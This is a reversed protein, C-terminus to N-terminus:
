FLTVNDDDDKGSREESGDGSSSGGNGPSRPVSYGPEELTGVRLDGKRGESVRDAKITSKLVTRESEMTYLDELWQIGREDEWVNMIEGMKRMKGIVGELEDKFLMIPEIVHDIRQRTIDQFQMSVIIGSIDSALSEAETTLSNLDARTELMVADIKRLTEDVVAEAESSMGKCEDNSKRTRSYIANLDSDIKIILNRIEDAATNSRGSLKRVEDAVVAFGRGQEGARAAEIAANLALLNTQDAIYEIESLTKKISSMSLIITDMDTLSRESVDATGRLSGIVDDLATRSLDVLADERGSGAFRGFAGSAKAAQDRAREVINAFKKGADLTSSETYEVVERLQNVMVPILKTKNQLVTTIPVSDSIIKDMHEKKEEHYAKEMRATFGRILRNMLLLAAAFALVVAAFRVGPRGILSFLVMPLMFLASFSLLRLNVSM